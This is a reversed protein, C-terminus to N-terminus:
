QPTYDPGDNNLLSFACEGRLAANMASPHCVLAVLVYYPLM